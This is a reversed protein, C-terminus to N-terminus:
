HPFEKKRDLRGSRLLAPDLIDVRNAATTVITRQVECDVAKGSAFRKTDITSQLHAQTSTRKMSVIKEIEGIQAEIQKILGDLIFYDETEEYKKVDKNEDNEYEGLQRGMEVESKVIKRELRRK